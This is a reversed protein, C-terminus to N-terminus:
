AIAATPMMEVSEDEETHHVTTTQQNTSPHSALAVGDEESHVDFCNRKYDMVWEMITPSVMFITYAFYAAVDYWAHHHDSCRSSSSSSGVVCYYEMPWVVSKQYWTDVRIICLLILACQILREQKVQYGTVASKPLNPPAVLTLSQTGGTHYERFTEGSIQVVKKFVTSTREPTTTTEGGGGGHGDVLVGERRGGGVDAAMEYTVHAWFSQYCCCVRFGTWVREVNGNIIIPRHKLAVRLIWSVWHFYIWSSVAGANLELFSLFGQRVIMISICLVVGIIQLSLCWCWYKM